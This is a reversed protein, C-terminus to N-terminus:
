DPDSLYGFGLGLSLRMETRYNILAFFFAVQHARMNRLHARLNRLIQLSSYHHVTHALLWTIKAAWKESM